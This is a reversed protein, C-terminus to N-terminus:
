QNPGSHVGWVCGVTWRYSALIPLQEGTIVLSYWVIRILANTFRVMGNEILDSLMVIAGCKRDYVVKWMNRTTSAM